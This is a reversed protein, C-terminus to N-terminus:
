LDWVVHGWLEYITTGAGEPHPPLFFPFPIKFTDNSKEAGLTQTVLDRSNATAGECGSAM